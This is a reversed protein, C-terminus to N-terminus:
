VEPRREDMLSMKLVIETQNPSLNIDVPSKNLGAVTFRGFVVFLFSKKIISKTKLMYVKNIAKM